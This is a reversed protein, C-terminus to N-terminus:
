DRSGVLLIKGSRGARGAHALAQDVEQLPYCAEVRTGIDGAAVATALGAYLSQVREAGATRLWNALWFGQLSLGRFVLHYPDIECPKGSLLGYNAIKGHNALCAAMANTSPGAVADIGLLISAGETADRAASACRRPDSGDDVIVQTAGLDTLMEAVNPRRVINLTRIGRAAAIQVLYTGVASNAANQVVWDGRDLNAFENLLLSATAPNVKLMAAQEVPIGDPLAIVESRKCLMKERWCGRGLPLVLSGPELDHVADGVTEVQGVGEAGPTYPLEIAAGYRGEITLLDAPNISMALMRLRVEDGQPGPPDPMEVCRTVAAPDGFSEFEVAKVTKEGQSKQSSIAARPSL